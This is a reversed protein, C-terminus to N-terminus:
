VVSKRDECMEIVQRLTEHIDTAEFSLELKGRSIRTMDLLDDILRAELAVNRRIMEVLERNGASVGSDKELLQAAAKFKRIQPNTLPELM